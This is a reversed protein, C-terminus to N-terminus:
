DEDQVWLMGIQKSNIGIIGADFTSNTVPMWSVLSIDDFDKEAFKENEPHKNTFFRTDESFHKKVFLEALTRALSEDMHELNYALNRHLVCTAIRVATPAEIKQWSDGLAHFPLGSNIGLEIGVFEDIAEIDNPGPNPGREWFEITVIGADRLIKIATTLNSM